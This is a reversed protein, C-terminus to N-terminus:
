LGDEILYVEGESMGDLFDVRRRKLLTCLVFNGHGKRRCVRVTEGTVKVRLRSQGIFFVRNKFCNGRRFVRSFANSSNETFILM